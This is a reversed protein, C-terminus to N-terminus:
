PVPPAGHESGPWRPLRPLAGALKDARRAIDRSRCRPEGARWAIQRVAVSLAQAQEPTAQNLLADFSDLTTCTALAARFSKNDM